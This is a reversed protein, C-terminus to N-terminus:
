LGTLEDQAQGPGGVAVHGSLAERGELLAGAHRQAVQGPLMLTFPDVEGVGLGRRHRHDGAGFPGTRFRTPPAVAREGDVDFALLGPVGQGSTLVEVEVVVPHQLYPLRQRHEAGRKVHGGQEALARDALVLRTPDAHSRFLPTYPSPTRSRTSLLT